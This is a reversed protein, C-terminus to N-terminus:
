MWTASDRSGSSCVIFCSVVIRTAPVSRPVNSTAPAAQVTASAARRGSRLIDSVARAIPPAPSRESRISDGCVSSSTSRSASVKLAM